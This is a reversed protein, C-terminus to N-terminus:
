GVANFGLEETIGRQLIFVDPDGDVFAFGRQCTFDGAVFNALSDDAHSL